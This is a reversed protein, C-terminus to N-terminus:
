IFRTVGLASLRQISESWRVTHTIQTELLKAIENNERVVEATVNSIVPINMDKFEAQALDLAFKDAAGQMLSCHFPASVPLPIVKAGLEKLADSASRVAMVQVLFLLKVM